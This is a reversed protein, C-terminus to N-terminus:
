SLVILQEPIICLCRQGHIKKTREGSKDTQLAYRQYGITQTKM